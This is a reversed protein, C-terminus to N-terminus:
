GSQEAGKQLFEYKTAELRGVMAYDCRGAASWRWTNDRGMVIIASSPDIEKSDIERLISILMDRVTRLSSDGLKEARVESVSRPANAFNEDVNV